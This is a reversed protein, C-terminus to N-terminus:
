WVNAGGNDNKNFKSVFYNSVIVIVLMVLSMVSGVGYMNQRFKLDISDGFLSIMNGGLIQSIAFTSITPIFVMTIGSIIGSVSLPLVTKVFTTIGNAGLDESAELYCKDIGSINTHLPLIMYPLYNYVMGILVTALGLDLGIADFIARTALTRLLFNVWMPLIFLLTMVKGKNYKALFYAVPYGILLCLLTTIVGVLISQWLVSINAGMTAFVVFNELTFEGDALFANVLILVLPLVVFIMLFLVYPVAFTKRSFRFITKSKKM